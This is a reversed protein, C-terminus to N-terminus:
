GHKKQVTQLKTKFDSKRFASTWNKVILWGGFRLVDNRWLRYWRRWRAPLNLSPFVLLPFIAIHYAISFVSRFRYFRGMIKRISYQMLDPTMPPDPHFLPFNGDYYEWGIDERSFIRNESELRASLETGPLPVPLLVQITDIGAKRIFSRFSRIRKKATLPLSKGNTLPYGFIFMGHIMFGAKRYLRTLEVMDEVKTKKNMAELEEAIPSEYGICVMRVGARYMAQLMEADRGRDLRIQVTLRLKKGIGKGYRELMSCLELTESRRYGFLDDVIFFKRAGYSEVANAIQRLVREATAPRPKGKVTCFECDMGCGRIWGVPYVKIKAYKVLDFKPLPLNDFDEIPKREETVIVKDDRTFAIGRVHEPSKGNRLSELLECMTYEGEGVVVYDIGNDLAEEINDGAFHQGGAIVTVGLAKYLKAIEYLRPVTSTLGGYLGLYGAKRLIQLTAHDPRGCDDLPCRRSCNNEDIIEVDWHDMEDVASAVAVPGLATTHRAVKSYVNFAPYAPAVIRLLNDDKHDKM